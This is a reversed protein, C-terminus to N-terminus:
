AEAARTGVKAKRYDGLTLFVFIALLTAGCLLWLAPVYSGGRELSLSMLIPGTGAGIAYASYTMSYNRAYSEAPLHRSVLYCMFDHEAGIGLGLLVACIMASDGAAGMALMALGVVPACLFASVVLPPPFRDLLLGAVIRGLTLAIALVSMTWAAYGRDVGRDVLLAVLHGLMGATFLGLLCFSTALKLFSPNALLERLPIVQAEHRAAMAPPEKLLFWVIPLAVVLIVAAVGAYAVSVGGREILNQVLPPIVFGGLGVGAMTIGLALGRSSDFWGVVVRTYSSPLTGAGFVALLIHIAYYLWLRGEVLSLAGFALAFLILSPILVRRVGFRDLMTGAVPGSIVVLWLLLGLALSIESRTWGFETSLPVVFLGFSLIAVNSYGLAMGVTSATLAQYRRADGSHTSAM